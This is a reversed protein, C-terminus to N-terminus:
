ALLATVRRSNGGIALTLMLLYLDCDEASVADLKFKDREPHQNLLAVIKELTQPSDPKVAHYAIAASVM